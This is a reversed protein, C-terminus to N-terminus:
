VINNHTLGMAELAKQRRITAQAFRPWAAVKASYSQFKHYEQYATDYERDAEVLEKIAAIAQVEDERDAFQLKGADQSACRSDVDKRFENNLEGKKKGVYYLFNGLFCCDYTVLFLHEHSHLRFLSPTIGM